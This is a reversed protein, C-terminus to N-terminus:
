KGLFGIWCFLRGYYTLKVGVNPSKAMANKTLGSYWPGNLRKAAQLCSPLLRSFPSVGVIKSHMSDCMGPFMILVLTDLSVSVPM